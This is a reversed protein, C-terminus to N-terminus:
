RAATPNETSIDSPDSLEKRDLTGTSTVFDHGQDIPTSEITLRRDGEAETGRGVRNEDLATNPHIEEELMAKGDELEKQSRTEVRQWFIEERETGLRRSGKCFLTM